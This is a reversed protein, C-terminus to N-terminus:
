SRPFADQYVRELDASFPGSFGCVLVTGDNAAVLYRRGEEFDFHGELASPARGVDLRVQTAEEDGAFWESVAITVTSGSVDVVEGDFADEAKALTDAQVPM